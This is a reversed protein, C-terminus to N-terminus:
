PCVLSPKFTCCECVEMSECGASALPALKATVTTCSLIPVDAGTRPTAWYNKRLRGDLAKLGAGFLSGPKGFLRRRIGIWDHAIKERQAQWPAGDNRVDVKVCSIMWLQDALM